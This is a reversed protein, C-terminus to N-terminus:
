EEGDPNSLSKAFEALQSDKRKLDGHYVVKEIDVDEKKLINPVADRNELVKINEDLEEESYSMQMDAAIVHPWASIINLKRIEESVDEGEITVIIRGKEDHLHYECVGSEDIKKLVTDIFEPRTQIVISSINM